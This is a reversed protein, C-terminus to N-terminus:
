TIIGKAIRGLLAGPYVLPHERVTFLFGSEPATVEQLILGNKANVVEGIVEGKAINKKIDTHGIFLGAYKSHIQIVQSPQVIIPHSVSVPPNNTVVVGV